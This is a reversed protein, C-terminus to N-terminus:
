LSQALALLEDISKEALAQDQKQTILQMLRQKKEKRDAVEKALDREQVKVAIVHKVIEFALGLEERGADVAAPTVFSVVEASQKTQLHLGLAIADLNPRNPSTSTLPLDWLDEVSLQGRPSDFRLKLRAAQEFADGAVNVNTSTTTTNTDM